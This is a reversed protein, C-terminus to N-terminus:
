MYSVKKMTTCSSVIVTGDKRTTKRNDRTMIKTEVHANSKATFLKQEKIKQNAEVRTGDVKCSTTSMEKSQQIAKLGRGKGATM